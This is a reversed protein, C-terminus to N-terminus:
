MIKISIISIDDQRELPAVQEKIREVVFTDEQQNWEDALFDSIEEKLNLNNKAYTELVGDTM